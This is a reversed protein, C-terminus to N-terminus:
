LIILPPSTWSAEISDLHAKTVREDGRIDDEEDSVMRILLCWRNYNWFSVLASFLAKNGFSSANRYATWLFMLNAQSKLSRIWWVHTRMWKLNFQGRNCWYISRMPVGHWHRNYSPYVTLNFVRIFIVQGDVAAMLTSECGCLTHLFFHM